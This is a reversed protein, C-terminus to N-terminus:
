AGKNTKAEERLIEENYIFNSFNPSFPVDKIDKEFITDLMANRQSELRKEIEHYIDWKCKMIDTTFETIKDIIKHSRYLQKYWEEGSCTKFEQFLEDSLTGIFKELLEMVEERNNGM